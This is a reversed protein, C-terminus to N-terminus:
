PAPLISEQQDTCIPDGRGAEPWSGFFLSFLLCFRCVAQKKLSDPSFNNQKTKKM